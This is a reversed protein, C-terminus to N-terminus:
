FHTSLSAVSFPNPSLSLISLISPPSFHTTPCDQKSHATEYLHGVVVSYLASTYWILSFHVIYSLFALISSAILLGVTFGTKESANAVVGDLEFLYFPIVVMSASPISTTLAIDLVSFSTRKLLMSVVITEFTQCLLAGLACLFGLIEFEPNKYLALLAAVVLFSTVVIMRKTFVQGDFYWSALLTVLPLASRVIQNLTLGSTQSSLNSLSLGLAHLFSFLLLMRWYKSLQPLDLSRRTLIFCLLSGLFTSLLGLLILFFAFKMQLLICTLTSRDALIRSFVTSYCTDITFVCM